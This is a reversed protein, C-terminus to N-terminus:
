RAKALSKGLEGCGGLLEFELGNPGSDSCRHIVSIYYFAYTMVKIVFTMTFVKLCPKLLM